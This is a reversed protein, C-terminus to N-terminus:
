QNSATMTPAGMMLCHDAEEDSHDHIATQARRDTQKTIGYQSM